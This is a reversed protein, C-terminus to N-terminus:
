RLLLFIFSRYVDDDPRMSQQGFVNIKLVQGQEDHILFLTEADSMLFSKFFKFGADM